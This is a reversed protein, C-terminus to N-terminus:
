SDSRQLLLEDGYFNPDDLTAESLEVEFPREGCPDFASHVRLTLLRLASGGLERGRAFALLESLTGAEAGLRLLFDDLVGDVAAHDDDDFHKPPDGLEDLLAEDLEAEAEDIPRVPQMLLEVLGSLRLVDPARPAQLRALLWDVRAALMGTELTLMPHLVDAELDPLPEASRQRFAQRNHEELYEENASILRRHLRLHRRYCEDLTDLLAVLRASDGVELEELRTKVSRMTERERGMHEELHGRADELLGLVDHVWDVQHVDRRVRQLLSLVKQEFEISRVRARKATRLAEDIRGRRLQSQLVALEATQADEVPYELMGAYLNIAETTATLIATGDPAPIEKLLHFQLERRQLSDGELFVYPESFAVRRARENLLGEIVTDAVVAAGKATAGPHMKLILGRLEDRLEAQTSGFGLGMREITLDLARLALARLDQGEFADHQRSSLNHLPATRLFTRLRRNLADQWTDPDPETM